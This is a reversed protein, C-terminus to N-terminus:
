YLRASKGVTARTYTHTSGIQGLSRSQSLAHPAGGMPRGRGRVGM